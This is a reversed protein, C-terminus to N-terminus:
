SEEKIERINKVNAVKRKIKGQSVYECITGSFKIKTGPKMDRLIKRPSNKGAGIWMHNRLKEGTELNIINLVLRHNTTKGMKDVTAMFGIIKKSGKKM